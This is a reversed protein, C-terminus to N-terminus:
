LILKNIIDIEQQITEDDVEKMETTLYEKMKEFISKYKSSVTLKISQRENQNLSPVTWCIIGTDETILYDKNEDRDFAIWDKISSVYRALAVGKRIGTNDFYEEGNNEFLVNTKNQKKDGKMTEYSVVIDMNANDNKTLKKLQLLILGGKVEGSANSSSPFLTNVHMINAKESDISDTGYVAKIEYDDSSLSLDLDYVLPTVMFDFEDALIKKFEEETSITYYNAGRVDSINKVINSNFDVGVGVFSTYIGKKANEYLDKKLGYNTNEGINPMADTIVIIRNTFGEANFLKNEEIMKTAMSYADDFNTGGRDTIELIHNKLSNVDTNIMLEMEKAKIAKSEFLVIGVNDYEGLQDLTMNLAEEALKMKDKYEKEESYPDDYYYTDLGSGMSGSIDLAIVLNLNERLFDSEKINSNLGVSIFYEEDGSIPDKSIAKSYSPYFMEGDNSSNTKGTDFYYDSYIGEYTIDTELPFYNNKINERYSTSNKAGGVSFGLYSESSNGINSSSTASQTISSSSEFSTGSFSDSFSKGMSFTSTTPTSQISSSNISSDEYELENEDLVWSDVKNETVYQSIDIKTKTIHPYELEESQNDNPNKIVQDGNHGINRSNKEKVYAYYIVGCAIIIILSIITLRIFSKGKEFKNKM